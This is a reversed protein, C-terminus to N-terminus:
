SFTNNSGKAKKDSFFVEAKVTMSRFHPHKGKEMWGKLEGIWFM